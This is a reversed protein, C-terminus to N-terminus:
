SAHRLMGFTIWLRCQYADTAVIMKLNFPSTKYVTLVVIPKYGLLWVARDNYNM